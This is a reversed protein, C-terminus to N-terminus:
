PTSLRRLNHTPISGWVLFKPTPTLESKYTIDGKTLGPEM